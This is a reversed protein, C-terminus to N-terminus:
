LVMWTALIVVQDDVDEFLACDDSAPLSPMFEAAASTGNQQQPHQRRSVVSMSVGCQRRWRRNSRVAQQFRRFMNRCEFRHPIPFPAAATITAAADAAAVADTDADASWLHANESVMHLNVIDFTGINPLVYFHLLRCWMRQQLRTLTPITTIMISKGFPKFISSLVLLGSITSQLASPPRGAGFSLIVGFVDARGALRHALQMSDTGDALGSAVEYVEWEIEFEDDDGLEEEEIVGGGGSCRVGLHHLM